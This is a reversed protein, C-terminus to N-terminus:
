FSSVLEIAMSIRFAECPADPLASITSLSPEIQIAVCEDVVEYSKTEVSLVPCCIVARQTLRFLLRDLASSPVSGFNVKEMMSGFERRWGIKALM